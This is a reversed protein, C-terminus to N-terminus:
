SWHVGMVENVLMALGSGREKSSLDAPILDSTDITVQLNVDNEKAKSLNEFFVGIEMEPWESELREAKDEDRKRKKRRADEEM